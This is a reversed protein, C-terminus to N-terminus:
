VRLSGRVMPSARQARSPTPAGQAGARAEYPTDGPRLSSLSLGSFAREPKWVPDLELALTFKEITGERDPFAFDHDLLYRDGQKVLIGHLTYVLEYVIEQNEFPPDSPLRSRWRLTKDAPWGFRDVASLDGESLERVTEDPEIRRLTEFGLTQGPFVRFIREGGNWDGDFRRATSSTLAGEADLQAKRGALGLSSRARPPRGRSCSCSSSFGCGKQPSHPERPGVERGRSRIVFRISTLPGFIGRNTEVVKRSGAKAWRDLFPFRSRVLPKMPFVVLSGAPLLRKELDRFFASLSGEAPVEAMLWPHRGAPFKPVREVLPGFIQRMTRVFEPSQGSAYAEAQGPLSFKEWPSPKKLRARRPFPPLSRDAAIEKM